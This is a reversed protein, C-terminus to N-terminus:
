RAGVASSSRSALFEELRARAVVPDAAPPLDGALPAALAAALATAFASAARAVSEISPGSDRGTERGISTSEVGPLGCADILDFDSLRV